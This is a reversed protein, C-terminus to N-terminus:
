TNRQRKTTRPMDTHVCDVTNELAQLRLLMQEERQAQDDRQQIGVTNQEVIEKLLKVIAGREPIEPEEPEEPEPEEPEEDSRGRRPRGLGRGWVM